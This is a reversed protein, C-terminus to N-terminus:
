LKLREILEKVAKEHEQPPLDKLKKKEEAYIQWKNM